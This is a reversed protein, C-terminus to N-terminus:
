SRSPGRLGAPRRERGDAGLRVQRSSAGASARSPDGRENKGERREADSVERVQLPQHDSPQREAQPREMAVHRGARHPKQQDGRDRIQQLRERRHVEDIESEKRQADDRDGLGPADTRAERAGRSVDREGARDDDERERRDNTHVRPHAGITAERPRRNLDLRVAGVHALIKASVMEHPQPTTRRM